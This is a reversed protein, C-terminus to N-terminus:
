AQRTGEFITRHTLHQRVGMEKRKSCLVEFFLDTLALDSLPFFCVCM